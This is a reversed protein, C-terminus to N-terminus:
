IDGGEPSCFLEELNPIVKARQSVTGTFNLRPRLGVKGTSSPLADYHEKADEQLRFRHIANADQNQFQSWDYKLNECRGESCGGLRNARSTHSEDWPLHLNSCEIEFRTRRFLLKRFGGQARAAPNMTSNTGQLWSLCRMFRPFTKRDRPKTRSPARSFSRPGELTRSDRTCRVQRSLCIAPSKFGPPFGAAIPRTNSGPSRQRRRRATRM